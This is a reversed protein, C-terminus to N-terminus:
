HNVLLFWKLSNKLEKMSKKADNSKAIFSGSIVGNAGADFADKITNPNMHGDVVVIVLPNIKKIQKIKKLPTKLYKAGYFGPHVTLILIYDVEMLYKKVKIVSTEPKLAVGVKKRKKKILNIVKIVNLDNKLSEM